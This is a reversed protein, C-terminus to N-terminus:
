FMGVGGGTGGGMIVGTFPQSPYLMPPPGAPYKEAVARIQKLLDVVEEHVDQTQSVILLKASGFSNGSISGPGGVEDWTTPSLTSAISDILTDYDDVPDGNEDCYVVLDVVDYVRTTLTSEAEEPTTILLTEDCIMWTLDLGRLFLNLGSRLSVNKVDITIPTDSGIGVDDLARHDIRINVKHRHALADVVDQLPTDAFQFDATSALAEVVAKCAADPEPYLPPKAEPMQMKSRRHRARQLRLATAQDREATTEVPTPATAPGSGFPDDDAPKAPQTKPGTQKLVEPQGKGFPNDEDPAASLSSPGGFQVGAVLGIVVIAVVGVLWSKHSMM